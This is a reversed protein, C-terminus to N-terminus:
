VQAFISKECVRKRVSLNWRSAHRGTRKSPAKHSSFVNKLAKDAADLPSQRKNDCAEPDAGNELLFVVVGDQGNEAAYHLLTRQTSHERESFVSHRQEDQAEELSLKSLGASTVCETLLALVAQEEGRQILTKLQQFADSTDPSLAAVATKKM